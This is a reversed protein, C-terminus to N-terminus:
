VVDMPVVTVPKTFVGLSPSEVVDMPLRNWHRGVKKIDNTLVPIPDTPSLLNRRLNTSAHAANFIEDIKQLGIITASESPLPALLDHLWELIQASTLM